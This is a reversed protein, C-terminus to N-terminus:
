KLGEAKDMWYRFEKYTRANIAKLFYVRSM